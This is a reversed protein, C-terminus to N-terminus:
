RARCSSRPVSPPSPGRGVLFLKAQLLLAGVLRPVAHLQPWLSELPHPPHAAQASPQAGELFAMAPAAVAVRLATLRPIDMQGLIM